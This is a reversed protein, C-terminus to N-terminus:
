RERAAALPGLIDAAAVPVGGKSAADRDRSSADKHAILGSAMPTHVADNRTYLAAIAAVWEATRHDAVYAVADPPLPSHGKVYDRLCGIDDFFIPEEGPAVIQAAFFRNSVAMRCHACADNKTDLAAPAPPGSGCAAALLSLLAFSAWLVRM